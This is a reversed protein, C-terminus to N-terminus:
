GTPRAVAGVPVAPPATPPESRPPRPRTTTTATPPRDSSEDATSPLVFPLQAAVEPREGLAAEAYHAAPVDVAMAADPGLDGPDRAIAAELDNREAEPNDPDHPGPHMYPLHGAVAVGATGGIVNGAAGAVVACPGCEM